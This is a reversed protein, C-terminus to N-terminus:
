RAPPTGVRDGDDVGGVPEAQVPEGFAGAVVLRAVFADGPLLLGPDVVPRGVADGRRDTGAESGDVDRTRSTRNAGPRSWSGSASNSVESPTITRQPYSSM